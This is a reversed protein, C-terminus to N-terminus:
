DKSTFKGKLKSYENINTLSIQFLSVITLTETLTHFYLYDAKGDFDDYALVFINEKNSAACNKRNIMLEDMSDM